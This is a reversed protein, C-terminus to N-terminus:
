REKLQDNLALADTMRFWDDTLKLVNVAHDTHLRVSEDPEFPQRVTRKKRAALREAHELLVAQLHSEHRTYMPLCESFTGARTDIQLEHKGTYRSGIVPYDKSM